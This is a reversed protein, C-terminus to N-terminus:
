NPSAAVSFNSLLRDCLFSFPIESIVSTPKFTVGREWTANKPMSSGRETVGNRWPYFALLLGWSGGLVSMQDWRSERGWIVTGFVPHLKIAIRKKKWTLKQPMSKQKLSVVYLCAMIHSAHVSLTSLPEHRFSTLLFCNHKSSQLFNIRANWKNCLGSCELENGSVQEVSIFTHQCDKPILISSSIMEAIFHLGLCM